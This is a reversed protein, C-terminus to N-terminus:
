KIILKKMSYTEKGRVSITYVGPALKGLMLETRLETYVSYYQERIVTVGKLDCVEVVVKGIPDTSSFSLTVADDAPNPFVGFEFDQTVTEEVGTGSCPNPLDLVVITQAMVFKAFLMGLTFLLIKKM